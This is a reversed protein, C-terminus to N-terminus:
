YSTTFKMLQLPHFQYSKVPSSLPFVGAQPSVLGSQPFLPAITIDQFHPDSPNMATVVGIMKVYSGVALTQGFIDTLADSVPTLSGYGTPIWRGSNWMSDMELALSM